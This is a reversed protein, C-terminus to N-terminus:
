ATLPCITPRFLRSLAYILRNMEMRWCPYDALHLVLTAKMTLVGDPSQVQGTVDSLKVVDSWAARDEDYIATFITSSGKATNTWIIATKVM